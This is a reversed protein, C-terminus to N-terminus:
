ENVGNTTCKLKINISKCTALLVNCKKRFGNFKFNYLEDKESTVRSQFHFIESGFHDIKWVAINNSQPLPGDM